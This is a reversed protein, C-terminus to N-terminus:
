RRFREGVVKKLGQNFADDAASPVARGAGAPQVADALRRQKDQEASERKGKWAKFQTFAEAMKMGDWSNDLEQQAEPKLTKKWDQFAESQFHERWDKHAYDLLRIEFKQELASLKDDVASDNGGGFQLGGFDNALAEAVGEDDFYEALKKFTEKSVQPVGGATRSRLEDITQKLNGITGFAKDHMKTLRDELEDVRKAKGLLERIEDESMGAILAKAGEDPKDEVEGLAHALGSEFEQEILEEPTPETPPDIDPQEISAFLNENDTETTM